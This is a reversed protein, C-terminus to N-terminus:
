RKRGKKKATPLTFHFTTGKGDSEFWVEGGHAEVLRKSLALGLGSSAQGRQPRTDPVRFFPEFVRDGVDRPIGVGTDSVSIRVTGNRAAASIRLEGGSPTYKVANDVLNLVVERLRRADAKVTPLDRGVDVHLKLDGARTLGEITARLDRIAQSLNIDELQLEITGVEARALDLIENVLTLLQRASSTITERVGATAAPRRRFSPDDLLQAQSIIVALPTRLEHSLSAFFETRETLLRRIEETRQDVRSELTEINAQLQDAMQNVGRAVQGLEDASLVPVRRTLDGSGLAQNTEVLPKLQALIIRSLLAGIAVVGAMALLLFLGL